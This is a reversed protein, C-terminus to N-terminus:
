TKSPPASSITGPARNAPVRPITVAPLPCLPPPPPSPFSLLPFFFCALASFLFVLSVDILGEGTTTERERWPRERRRRARRHGRWTNNDSKHRPFHHFAFTEARFILAPARTAFVRRAVRVKIRYGGFFGKARATQVREGVMTYRYNEGQGRTGDDDGGCRNARSLQARVPCPCFRFRFDSLFFFFLGPCLNRARPCRVM